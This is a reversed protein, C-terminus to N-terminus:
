LRLDQWWDSIELKNSYKSFSLNEGNHWYVAGLILGLITVAIYQFRLLYPNRMNNHFARHAVM